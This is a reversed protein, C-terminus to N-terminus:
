PVSWPGGSGEEPGFEVLTDRLSRNQAVFWKDSRSTDAIRVEDIDGNFHNKIQDSYAHRGIKASLLTPEPYAAGDSHQFVGDKFTRLTAGDFTAALYYWTGGNLPKLDTSTWDQLVPKFSVSGAYPSEHDWMIQYNQERMLPGNPGWDTVPANDSRALVEITFKGLYSANNTDIYQKKGADFSRGQGFLGDSQTAGHNKAKFLTKGSSDSLDDGGEDLHWVGQYGDSWVGKVNQGDDARDNGYYMWIAPLSSGNPKLSPIRVWVVSTGGQDWREIEHDLVQHQDDTFRLDEGKNRTHGYDIRDNKKLLVLLSFNSLAVDVGSDLELKRRWRFLPGGAGTSSSTATSTSQAGGAGGSGKTGGSATTGGGSGTTTAAQNDSGTGPMGKLDLMCSASATFTLVVAPLLCKM